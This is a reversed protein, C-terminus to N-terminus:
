QAIYFKVPLFDSQWHYFITQSLLFSFRCGLRVDYFIFTSITPKEMWNGPIKMWNGKYLSCSCSTTQVYGRRQTSTIYCLGIVEVHVYLPYLKDDIKPPNESVKGKYSSILYFSFGWELCNHLLSFLLGSIHNKRPNTSKRPNQTPNSWGQTLM